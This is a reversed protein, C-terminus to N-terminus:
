AAAARRRRSFLVTGVTFALVTMIILSWESVTPISGVFELIECDGRADVCGTVTGAKTVKASSSGGNPIIVADMIKTGDSQTVTVTRPAGTNNVIIIDSGVTGVGNLPNVTTTGNANLTVTVSGAWSPAALGLSLMCAVLLLNQIKM